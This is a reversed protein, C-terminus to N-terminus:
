RGVAYCVTEWPTIDYHDIFIRYDRNIEKILLPIKYLHEAKHYICIALNPKFRKISKEAGKIAEIENGEVDLKIFDIQKLNNEEIFEDIATM